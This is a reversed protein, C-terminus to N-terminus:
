TLDGPVGGVGGLFDVFLCFLFVHLLLSAPLPDLGRREERFLMSPSLNQFLAPFWPLRRLFPCGLLFHM